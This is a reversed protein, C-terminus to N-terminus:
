EAEFEGLSDFLPQKNYIGELLTCAQRMPGVGSGSNAKIM